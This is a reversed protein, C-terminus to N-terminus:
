KGKCKHNTPSWRREGNEKEIFFHVTNDRCTVKTIWELGPERYAVKPEAIICFTVVGFFLGMVFTITQSM